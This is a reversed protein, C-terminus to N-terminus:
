VISELMNLYQDTLKQQYKLSCLYRNLHYRLNIHTQTSKLPPIPSSNLVNLLVNLPSHSPPPSIFPPSAPSAAQSRGGRYSLVSSSIM